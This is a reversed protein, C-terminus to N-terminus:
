VSAYLSLRRRQHCWSSCCRALLPGPFQGETSAFIPIRPVETENNPVVRSMPLPREGTLCGADDSAATFRTLVAPRDIKGVAVDVEGNQRGAVAAFANIVEAHFDFMYFSRRLGREGSAGRASRCIKGCPTARNLM